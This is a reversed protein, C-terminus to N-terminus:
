QPPHGSPAPRPPSSLSDLGRSLRPSSYDRSPMIRAFGRLPSRFTRQSCKKEPGGRHATCSAGSGSESGSCSIGRRFCHFLCCELTGFDQASVVLRVPFRRNRKRLCAASWFAPPDFGEPRVLPLGRSPRLYFFLKYRPTFYFLLERNSYSHYASWVFVFVPPFPYSVHFFAAGGYQRRSDECGGKGDRGFRCCCRGFGNLYAAALATGQFNSLSAPEDDPGATRVVGGDGTGRICHRHLLHQGEPSSDGLRLPARLDGGGVAGPLTFAHCQRDTRISGSGRLFALGSDVSAMAPGLHSQM